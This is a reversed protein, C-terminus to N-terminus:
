FVNENSAARTSDQDLCHTVTCHVIGAQRGELFRRLSPCAEACLQDLPLVAVDAISFCGVGLHALACRMISQITFSIHCSKLGKVCACM